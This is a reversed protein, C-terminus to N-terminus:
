HRYLVCFEPRHCCSVFKKHMKWSVPCNYGYQSISQKFYLRDINMNEMVCPRRESQDYYYDRAFESRAKLSKQIASVALDEVFWRSRCADISQVSNYLKQFFYHVQPLNTITTQIRQKLVDGICDFDNMGKARKYSVCPDMQMNFVNQPLINCKAMLIAQEKTQPFNEIVWGNQRCDKSQLRRVLLKILDEAEFSMGQVMTLQRLQAAYGADRKISDEIIEEMKLYVAGTKAAITKCLTTKGSKPLGLVSVAPKIMLDNPVAEQAGFM